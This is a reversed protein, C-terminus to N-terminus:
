SPYLGKHVNPPLNDLYQPLESESSAKFGLKMNLHSMAWTRKMMPTKCGEMKIWSIAMTTPFTSLTMNM